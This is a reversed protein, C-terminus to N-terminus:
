TRLPASGLGKNLLPNRSEKQPPRILRISDTCRRHLLQGFDALGLGQLGIRHGARGFTIQSVACGVRIQTANALFFRPEYLLREGKLMGIPEPPCANGGRCVKHGTFVFEPVSLIGARGECEM